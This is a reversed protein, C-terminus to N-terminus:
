RREAQRKYVDLHTYSVAEVVSSDQDTFAMGYENWIRGSSTNSVRLNLCIARSGPKIEPREM